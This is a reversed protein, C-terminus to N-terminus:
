LEKGCHPCKQKQPSSLQQVFASGMIGAPLAVLGVGFLAVLAGACKGLPTVPTLDGYGVTTLTVIGWWM